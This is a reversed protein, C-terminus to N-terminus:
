FLFIERVKAVAYYQKIGTSRIDSINIESKNWCYSNRSIKKVSSAGKLPLHMTQVCALMRMVLGKLTIITGWLGAAM